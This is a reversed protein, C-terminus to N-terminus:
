VQTKNRSREPPCPLLASQATERKEPWERQRNGFSNLTDTNQAPPPTLRPQPVCPVCLCSCCDQHIIPKARPIGWLAAPEFGAGSLAKNACYRRLGTQMDPAAQSPFCIRKRFDDCSFRLVAICIAVVAISPLCCVGPASQTGNKNVVCSTSFTHVAVADPEPSVWRNQFSPKRKRLVCRSPAYLLSRDKIGFDSRTLRTDVNPICVPGGVFPM